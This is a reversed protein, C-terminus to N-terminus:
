LRQLGNFFVKAFSLPRKILIPKLNVARPSVQVRVVNSDFSKLDEADVSEAVRAGLWLYYILNFIM